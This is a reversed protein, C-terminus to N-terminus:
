RSAMSRIEWVESRSIIPEVGSETSSDSRCDASWRSLWSIAPLVRSHPTVTIDTSIRSTAMGTSSCSAM